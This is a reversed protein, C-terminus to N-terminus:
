ASFATELLEKLKGELADEDSGTIQFELNTGNGAGMSLISMMSKANYLSETTDKKIMVDSDYNKVLNVLLSAPRAHLGGTTELTINIKKM